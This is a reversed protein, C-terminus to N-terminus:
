QKTGLDPWPLGRLRTMGREQLWMRSIEREMDTMELLEYRAKHMSALAVEERQEEPNSMFLLRQNANLLNIFAQVDLRKLVGVRQAYQMAETVITM